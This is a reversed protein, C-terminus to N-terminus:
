KKMEETKTFQMRIFADEKEASSFHYTSEDFKIKNMKYKNSIEAERKRIKM